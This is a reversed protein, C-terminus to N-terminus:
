ISVALRFIVKNCSKLTFFLSQGVKLGRAVEPVSMCTNGRLITENMEAAAQTRCTWEFM